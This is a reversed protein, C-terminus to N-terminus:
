CTRGQWVLQFKDKIIVLTYFIIKFVNIFQLGTNGRGLVNKNSVNISINRRYQSVARIQIERCINIVDKSHFLSSENLEKVLM